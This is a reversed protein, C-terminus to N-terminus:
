VGDHGPGELRRRLDAAVDPGYHVDAFALSVEIESLEPHERRIARRALGIVAASLSLAAHVRKAPTARGFLEMQVRDAEPDTDDLGQRM